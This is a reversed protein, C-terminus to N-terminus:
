ATRRRSYSTAPSLRFVADIGVGTDMARMERKDQSLHRAWFDILNNVVPNYRHITRERAFDAAVAKNTETICDFVTRPEFLLWMHDHAWDLRISIGERWHLDPTAKVSGSLTKTLERLRNWTADEPDTPVLNGRHIQSLTRHRSIARKLADGILGRETSDYRQRRPDFAHLDFERIGHSGFAKRVDMDAGFALVGVQSRVALIDVGAERVADRVEATGGINCEVRRCQTPLDIVPLANLRVVPWGHRDDRQLPAPSWHRNKSAFQDLETTDIDNSLRILDRLTEDFNEVRVIAAEVNKAIGRELLEAVRPFPPEDGRHLWFLGAPFSNEQAIADEITDMISNDRGSYGCIILGFRKCTDVLTSRLQADQQRLEDDTNKLRRSRFDGHLKIELPWREDALLQQAQSASDLDISTLASTTGYVKACADAVLTDFNTTWVLRSQGHRMLTALAMHGYSPKAGSLKADLIARRDSEAPYAAEFLAAYENPTGPPPLGDISKLHTDIRNRVVPDSLNSSAYGSGPNQSLFLSQKFEWIMDMATPLGASASTGAGLFWMLNKARISFRRAFDDFPLEQGRDRHEM